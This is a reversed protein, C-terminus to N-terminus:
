DRKGVTITGRYKRSVPLEQQTDLTLADTKVTMIHARAVVFARHIRIFDMGLLNEWQSIPTKNRYKMNDITHVWTEDDNSEVYLIESQLLRVPKRDSTFTISVPEKPIRRTLYRVLFWDGVSFLIASITLTVPFIPGNPIPLPQIFNYTDQYDQKGYIMAYGVILLLCAIICVTSALLFLDIIRRKTSQELIRPFTFKIILGAPLLLISVLLAEFFTFCICNLVIATLLVTLTWYASIILRRRM